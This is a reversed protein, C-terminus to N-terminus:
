VAATSDRCHLINFIHIFGEQYKKEIHSICHSGAKRSNLRCGIWISKVYFYYPM